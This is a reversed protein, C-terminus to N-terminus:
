IRRTKKGYKGKIAKQMKTEKREKALGRLLMPIVSEIDKEESEEKEINMEEEEREGINTPAQQIQFESPAFETPVSQKVEEQYPFSSSTYSPPIFTEEEEEPEQFAPYTQPTWQPPVFEEEEKMVQPHLWGGEKEEETQEEPQPPVPIPFGFEDVGSTPGHIYKSMIQEGEEIQREEVAKRARKMYEIDKMRKRAIEKSEEFARKKIQKIDEETVPLGKKELAKVAYDIKKKAVELGIEVFKKENESLPKQQKPKFEATEEEPQQSSVDVWGEELPRPGFYEELPDFEEKEKKEVPKIVEKIAEKVVIKPVEKPNQKPKHILAKFIRRPEQREIEGSVKEMVKKPVNGKSKKRTGEEREEKEREVMKLIMQETEVNPKLEVYTPKPTKVLPTKIIQKPEDQKVVEKLQQIVIKPINVEQQMVKQPIRSKESERFLSILEDVKHVEPTIERKHQEERKAKEELLTDRINSTLKTINELRTKGELDGRIIPSSVIEEMPQPINKALEKGIIIPLTESTLKEGREVKRKIEEKVQEFKQKELQYQKEREQKRKQVEELEKQSIIQPEEKRRKSQQMEEETIEIREEEKGAYKQSQKKKYEEMQERKKAEELVVQIAQEKKPINEIILEEEQKKKSERKAKMFALEELEKQIKMQERLERERELRENEKRLLEIKDSEEEEEKLKKEVEEQQKKRKKEDEPDDEVVPKKKKRIEKLKMGIPSLQVPEDDSGEEEEKLMKGMEKFIAMQRKNMPVIPKPEEKKLEPAKIYVYLPDLVVDHKLKKYEGITDNIIKQIDEKKTISISHLANVLPSKDPIVYHNGIWKASKKVLDKLPLKKIGEM